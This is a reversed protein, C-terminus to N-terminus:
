LRDLQDLFATVVRNFEGPQDANSMHGADDIVRRQAGRIKAAMYDAAGLYGRDRAGVLVLVPVEIAPLSDIVRSDPQTLMGRAALALGHRGERELRGATALARDNWDQRAKDNRFGPGCDFLMLAAVREPLALYFALSFYGGLSLGGLVAQPFEYADLLAAMDQVCHERTYAGPDSPCDSGGHGRMDWTIVPRTAALAGVNPEWMSASEGFGNSLLVPLNGNREGTIQHSIRVGARELYAM